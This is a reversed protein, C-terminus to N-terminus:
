QVAIPKIGCIRCVAADLKPNANLAELIMQADDQNQKAVKIIQVMREKALTSEIEKPVEKTEESM